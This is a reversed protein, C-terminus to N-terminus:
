PGGDWQHLGSMWLYKPTAKTNMSSFPLDLRSSGARPSSPRGHVKDVLARVAAPIDPGLEANRRGDGDLVPLACLPEAQAGVALGDGQGEVVREPM